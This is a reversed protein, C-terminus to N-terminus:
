CVLTVAAKILALTKAEADSTAAAAAAATAAKIEEATPGPDVITQQKSSRGGASSSPRGSTTTPIAVASTAVVPTVAVSLPSAADDKIDDVHPAALTVGSILSLVRRGPDQSFFFCDYSNHSAQLCIVRM